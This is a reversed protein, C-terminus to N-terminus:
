SRRPRCQGGAACSPSTHLYRGGSDQEAVVVFLFDRLADGGREAGAREREACVRPLEFGFECCGVVGGVGDGDAASGRGEFDDQAAGIDGVVVDDHGRVGEGGGSEGHQTGAGVGYEGVDVPVGEGEGGGGDFGGEGVVGLGDDEDVDAPDDRGVHGGETLQAVFAADDEDFVRCVRVAAAVVPPEGAREADGSREGEVGGLDDGATLAAHDHGGVFADAVLGDDVAVLALGAEEAVDVDFLTVRPPHAFQVGCDAQDM